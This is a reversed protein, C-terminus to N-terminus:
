EIQYQEVLQGVGLQLAELAEDNPGSEAFSNLADEYYKIMLDNLSADHTDSCLYWFDANEAQKVFPELYPNTTLEGALNTLPYIEGFDRVQSAAQYFHRLGEASALYSLFEWAAAKNKSGASVGEVWFSAWTVNTLEGEGAEAAEFDIERSEPLQPVRAIGFNLGPNAQKIEFYRWSPAFYFGLKGAAFQITSSPLTKDWVKEKTSFLTYYQLVDRVLQDPKGPDAGNQLIMLGIIDSFHDVNNTTGLALGATTIKGSETTQTIDKALQQLGWWTRPLQGGAQDLLDRNYYLALTDVQLPLAYFRQNYSIAKSVVPFYNAELGLKQAVADPVPEIQKIFLPLWTHHLRFIDPGQGSTLANQLRAKYERPSQMKYDVKINPHKKEFQAIVGRIVPEPEWLGWYTITAPEGSPASGKKGLLKFVGFVLLFLLLVGLIILVPKPLFSLSNKKVPEQPAVPPPPSEPPVFVPIVPAQALPDPNATPQNQNM